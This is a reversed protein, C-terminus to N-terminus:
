TEAALATAERAANRADRAADRDLKADLALTLRASRSIKEFAQVLAVKAEPNETERAQVALDKALMLSLEALEGLIQEVRDQKAARPM